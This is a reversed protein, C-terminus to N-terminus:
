AVVKELYEDILREQDEFTIEAKILGEAKVLAKEVIEEQLQLKAQKFAHEVNRHAQEELKEAASEAEKLIREKADNGQKIYEEVIKEAEKDLLLLKENYEALDKEAAKEKTELEDLQDKIGKIRDGLAQAVPKRLIFYLAIALVAFNMVRYTDTAVWGKAEGGSGFAVGVSLFLLIATFISLFWRRSRGRDSQFFKTEQLKVIGPIKM